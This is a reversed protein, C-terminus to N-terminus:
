VDFGLVSNPDVGVARCWLVFRDVRPIQKGSEWQNVCADYVGVAVAVDHQTLEATKRAALMKSPMSQKEIVCLLDSM